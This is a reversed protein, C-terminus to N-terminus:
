RRAAAAVPGPYTALAGGDLPISAATIYRSEASVLFAVLAAVEEPTTPEAIMRNNRRAASKVPDAFTHATEESLISGLVIANARINHEAYDMAIQRTLGELAAKSTAYAPSARYVRHASISSINVIAGGGAAVMHGIGYKALWFAGYVNVKMLRDFLETPEDAIPREGVGRLVDSAAANNVIVDLRGFEAVTRQMADRVAQESSIDTPVFLARGGRERVRGAIAEGSGSRGLGAVAMGEDVLRDIIAAGMSKTAGSVIAVKGELSRM